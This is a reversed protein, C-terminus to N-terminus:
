RFVTLYKKKVKEVLKELKLINKKFITEKNLFNKNM